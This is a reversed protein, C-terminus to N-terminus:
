VPRASAAAVARREEVSQRIEALQQPAVLEEIPHGLAQAVRLMAELSLQLHRASEIEVLFRRSVGAVRALETQSIGTEGHWQRYRRVHFALPGEVHLYPHDYTHRHRIESM